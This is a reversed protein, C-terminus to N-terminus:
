LQEVKRDREKLKEERYNDPMPDSIKRLSGDRTRTYGQGNGVSWAAQFLNPDLRIPTKLLRKMDRSRKRSVM